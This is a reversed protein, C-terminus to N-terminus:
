ELEMYIVGMWYFGYLEQNDPLKKAVKKAIRNFSLDDLDYETRLVTSGNQKLETLLQGTIEEYDFYKDHIRYFEKEGDMSDYRDIYADLMYENDESLTIDGAIDPLNFLANKLYDTDNNTVDIIQWEGDINVKNWAHAYSGNLFGTVVISELGAEQALLQFAGAYGSCVCKGEVLAGYVNFSDYFPEDVYDFNHEIANNLAEEDYEIAACLYDNIALEKELDTMNESIIEDTIEEVKQLVKEQKKAMVKPKDGYSLYILKKRKDIKYGDIGLILPNQYYAEMLADEVLNVDAAEYFESLEIVESGSLMCRALYESLASNATVPVDQIQRVQQSKEGKKLTELNNNLQMGGSKKGLKEERDRLFELVEELDKEDFDSITFVDEFPTGEIIYPLKLEPVNKGELYNGEYDTYIYREEIVAAKDLDYHLVKKATNGDCMTVYGYAPLDEYSEIQYLEFGNAKWTDEAISYPLVSAIEELKVTNSMMSTGQTCVAFVCFEKKSRGDKPIAVPEEGYQAIVSKSKYSNYWDNQCVVYNQFMINNAHISGYLPAEPVWETEKTVAWVSAGSNYGNEEDRNISCVFYEEAGEVPNWELSLRGDETFSYSVVPAEPLEGERSIIHVIPEELKEGTNLDYYVALYMTSLNGWDKGAGQPFLSINDHPYKRAVDINVSSVYIPAIDYNPPMLCIVKKEEDYRYLCNASQKLEPDQYIGLVGNWLEEGLERPDAEAPIEITDSRKLGTIPEGYDYGYTGTAFKQKVQQALIEAALYTGEVKKYQLVGRAFHMGIGAAALFALVSCIFIIQRKRSKM